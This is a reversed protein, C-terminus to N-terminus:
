ALAAEVFAEVAARSVECHELVVATDALLREREQPETLERVNVLVSYRAARAAGFALAAAVGLDSLLRRNAVAKMADLTALLEALTVLMQMPVGIAAGLAARHAAVLHAAPADESYKAAAQLRESALTLHMFAAADEDVFQRLMADARAIRDAAPGIQRAAELPTKKSLSYAAVMRAMAAALAGGLGAAAGGGPTPTRDALADLFGDVTRDRLDSV